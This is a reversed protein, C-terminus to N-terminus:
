SEAELEVRKQLRRILSLPGTIVLRNGSVVVRLSLVSYILITTWTARYILESDQQTPPKFGMQLIYNELFTDIAGRDRCQIELSGLAFYYAGLPISVILAIVAAVMVSMGLGTQTGYQQSEEIRSLLEEPRFGPVWRQLQDPFLRDLVRRNLAAQDDHDDFAEAIEFIEPSFGAATDGLIFEGSALLHNLNRRLVHVAKGVEQEEGTVVAEIEERTSASLGRWLAELEANKRHYVIELLSKDKSIEDPSVFYAASGMSGMWLGVAAGLLCTLGIWVLSTEFSRRPPPIRNVREIGSTFDTVPPPSISETERGLLLSLDMFLRNMQENFDRGSSVSIANRYAFDSLEDPLEAASPMQTGDVLLPIVPINRELAAQLEIRVFDTADELANVGAEGKDLWKDGMVVVLIDSSSIWDTLQKRFDVGPPISDVDMFVSDSGYEATFRDYIRGTIGQTDTRRYSLFIKAMVASYRM